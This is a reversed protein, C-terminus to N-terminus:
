SIIINIRNLIKGKSTRIFINKWVIMIICTLHKDIHSRQIRNIDDYFM